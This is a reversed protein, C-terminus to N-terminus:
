FQSNYHIHNLNLVFCEIAVNATEQGLYDCQFFNEPIEDLQMITKILDTGSHLERLLNIDFHLVCVDFIVFNTCRSNVLISTM